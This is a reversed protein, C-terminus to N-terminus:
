LEERAWDGSRMGGGGCTSRWPWWREGTWEECGGKERIVLGLGGEEGTM